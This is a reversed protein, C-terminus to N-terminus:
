KGYGAAVVNAQVAEDIENSTYGTTVSGEYFTGAGDNSNDGGVGLVVAGEKRMPNYKGGWAGKEPLVGDYQTKLAGTQSNGVKITFWNPKGKLVGTVYPYTLSAAGSYPNTNGAWVGNELDAMVWPGSGAGRGWSTTGYYLTEMTGEGNDSTNTEVNGFDFCCGGNYHKGDVVFYMSEPDQGKALGTAKNNRYGLKPEIYIGYVTNGGVKMKGKSADVPGDPTKVGSGGPAPTLHNAKPSQDYIIPITCTTNACFAEQQASDVFGGATLVPIDKTANDSKRQVQYLIGKFAGYLARVTSYAAVCPTNGAAYIDCPRESTGSSGATGTGGDTATAGGAGVSGASGGRGTADSSGGMATSGGLGTRGGTATAGGSDVAGGVGARGGSGTQGAASIGGSASSAAGSQGGMSTSGGLSASGGSSIATVSGGAGASAGGSGMAGGSATLGGSSKAGGTGLGSSAPTESCGAFAFLPIITVCVLLATKM